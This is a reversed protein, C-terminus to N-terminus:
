HEDQEKRYKKLTQAVKVAAAWSFESGNRIKSVRGANSNILRAVDRNSLGQETLEDLQLRVRMIFDDQLWAKRLYRDIDKARYYTLGDLQISRRTVSHFTNVKGGRQYISRIYRLNEPSTELREAAEGTDFWAEGGIIKYTFWGEDRKKM